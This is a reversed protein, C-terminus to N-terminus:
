LVDLVGGMFGGFCALDDLADNHVLTSFQRSVSLLLVSLLLM